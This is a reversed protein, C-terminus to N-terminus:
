RTDKPLIEHVKNMAVCTVSVFVLVIIVDAIYNFNPHLALNINCTVVKAFTLELSRMTWLYSMKSGVLLDQTLNGAFVNSVLKIISELDLYKTEVLSLLM